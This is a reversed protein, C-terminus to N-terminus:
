SGNVPMRWMSLGKYNKRQIAVFDDATNGDSLEVGLKAQQVEKLLGNLSFLIAVDRHRM